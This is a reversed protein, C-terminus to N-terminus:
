TCLEFGYIKNILYFIFNELHYIPRYNNNYYQFFNYSFILIDNVDESKIYNNQILNKLIFWICETVDINYIFIDYLKDRLEIYINDDINLILNLINYCIQEHKNAFHSVINANIHKINTIQSLNINKNLKSNNCKNYHSKLPRPVSITICINIINDPIFSIKESLLIFKLSINSLTMMYSYFIDLLESHTNHFNKCVIIGVGNNRSIVIDQIHNYIENWLLKSNCGLLSMDIEFHLDSIKYFYTNKNYTITLKKEYKLNTNSYKKICALMQTYKGTGPPGYFIMNNLDEVNDPFSNYLSKLKPHLDYEDYKSLYDEFHNDNIKM